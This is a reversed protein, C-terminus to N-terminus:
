VIESDGDRRGGKGRERRLYGLEGLAECLPRHVGPVFKRLGSRVCANGAIVELSTARGRM